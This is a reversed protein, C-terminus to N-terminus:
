TNDSLKRKRKELSLIKGIHGDDLFEEMEEALRRRIKALSLNRHEYIFDNVSQRRKQRKGAYLNVKKDRYSQITSWKKSIFDKVQNQTAEPNIYIAVPYKKSVTDFHDYMCELLFQDNRGYEDITSPLHEIRLLDDEYDLMELPIEIVKNFLVYLRMLAFMRESRYGQGGILARSTNVITMRFNGIKNKHKENTTEIYKLYGESIPIRVPVYFACNAPGFVPDTLQRQDEETFEIGSSPIGMIERFKCVADILDAKRIAEEFAIITLKTSKPLAKNSM